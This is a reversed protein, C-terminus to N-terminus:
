KNGMALGSDLGQRLRGAACRFASETIKEQRSCFSFIHRQCAKSLLDFQWVRESSDSEGNTGTVKTEAAALRSQPEGLSRQKALQSVTELRTWYRLARIFAAKPAAISEIRSM